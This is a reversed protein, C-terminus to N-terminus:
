ERKDHNNERLQKLVEKMFQHEIDDDFELATVLCDIEPNDKIKQLLTIAEGLTIYLLDLTNGDITYQAHNFPNATNEEFAKKAEDSIQSHILKLTPLLMPNRM